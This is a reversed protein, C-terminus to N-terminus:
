DVMVDIVTSWNEQVGKTSVAVRFYYRTSSTLGTKSFKVKTGTYITTWSAVTTPDTTMQYIYASNRAAKSNLNVSGKVTGQVVTFVKPKLVAPKKEPMGSSAIIESTHLVDANAIGEVYAALPKLLIVLGREETRMKAVSGKVRTLAVTYDAELLNIQSTISVLSPSPNPFNVNGTMSTVYHRANQIMVPVTVKSLGLAISKKKPKASM